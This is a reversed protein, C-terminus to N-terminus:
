CRKVCMKPHCGKLKEILQDVTMLKDDIEKDTM